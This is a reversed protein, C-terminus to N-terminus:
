EADLSEELEKASEIFKRAISVPVERYANLFPDLISVKEEVPASAKAIGKTKTKKISM